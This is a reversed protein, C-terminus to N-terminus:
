VDSFLLKIKNLEIPKLGNRIWRSFWFSIKETINENFDQLADGINVGSFIKSLLKYEEEELEMRWVVDDHRFIALYSVSVIPINPTKEEMVSCYYSNVPYDFRVLKLAKRPYLVTEVLLEPTMDSIHKQELAETEEPDKLQAIMTELYCIEQAFIDEPLKKAIFDPLKITYRAINFHDPQVENVFSWLLRRFKEKGLYYLLVPYDEATIDYLRYRYANVYVSLQASPLFGEKSVIWSDPDSNFKEGMTIAEQM